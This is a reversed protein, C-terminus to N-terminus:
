PITLGNVNMTSAGNEDQKRQPKHSTERQFYAQVGLKESMNCTYRISARCM